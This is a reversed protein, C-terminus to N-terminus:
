RRYLDRERDRLRERRADDERQGGRRDRDPSRSRTRRPEGYGAREGPPYGRERFPPADGDRYRERGPPPGDMDRYGSRPPLPAEPDRFSGERSARRGRSSPDGGSYDPIYTDVEPGGRRAPPPPGRVPPYDPPGRPPMDSPRPPLAHGNMPPLGREQKWAPVRGGPADSPLPRGGRRDDYGRPPPGRDRGDRGYGRPPRDDYGYGNRYGGPPANGNWEDPGMGVTGGAPAPPAKQQKEHGRRRSDLEHSDSYSPLDEPRATLPPTSFYDHQLADIANIRTRWDLKLLQKLLDLGEPSSIKPGFRQDIDGRQADWKKNNGCGPLDSWGPMNQETPSGVLKFIRVCQDIDTKGELIPKREFMEGFICGVGWMDIAPTYRKLTLLLEPPRYWRTVVLSTYDRVAEGSGRGPQPTLGEYHRALGFDAIQLVGKNSILINAAKMDRHLIRSDHLYRLGELLQQMYCKIQSETFRIDPNTLMGSLDHDMYPMVMYLTARKKGSKGKDDAPAREVVMEELRLINPHSLMKLLKVERLATIPFGDKENHMLIKKLAVMNGTRKSKAKSVVGFTGEGLKEHMVEYETIKASGRFRRQTPDTMTPPPTAVAAAM